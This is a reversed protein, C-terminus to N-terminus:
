DATPAAPPGPWDREAYQRARSKLGSFRPQWKGNALQGFLQKADEARGAQLLVQARDWLIQANQPEADFASAYARDALEFHGQQRLMKAMSVWPAAQNPKAALPTTLYEWAMEAAGLDGLIRAAAQCAATPDPDVQRWRDAARVVRGVFRKPPEAELTAIATALQQYRSLLRGYDRRIVRLDVVQPLGEYEIEMAREVYSLARATMGRSEALMAALRWLSPWKAYTKHDLLPQLLADARVRQGTHWLYEVAALTVPLQEEEPTGARKGATPVWVLGFLEEALTQDGLKHVQWALRVAAARAGESILEDSTRRLMAQWKKAGDPGRHFAQRFSGDIPPLFGRELTEEYLKSFLKRAEKWDGSNLMGRAHEYRAVYSLAPIRQFNLAAEGMMRSVDRGGGFPPADGHNRVTNWLAWGLEPSRCNRIFELARRREENWKAKDGETARGTNWHHWLDRFSALERLFGGSEAAEGPGESPLNFEQQQGRRLKLYAAVYQALPHDPHDELPDCPLQTNNGFNQEDKPNWTQGGAILLAYFGVRRDGRSFFRRAIVERIMHRDSALYGGLAALADEETWSEYRNDLGRAKFVSWVERFPLPLIVLKKEDPKLAPAGCPALDVKWERLVKDKGRILKVAGDAAYTQRLLTQGSPMKVLRREALRGDPDFLLHVRVYEVPKGDEHKAEEVGHPVVAVTQGDIAVLDAGLALDEAPPLAWPVRRALQARHFRSLKRRAGLGLEGYLHWLNTGDCIVEEGLGGATTRQYRYRGTGDFDVALLVDGKKGRITARQWGAARAKNILRRATKDIRGPATARKPRAEAELAARVDAMSTNMGPAYSLLDHFISWNNNFTPQQYALYQPYSGRQMRRMLAAVHYFYDGFALQREAEEPTTILLVDNQILYTLGLERLILRLASRLSIGELTKTVPSRIALGVDVLARGDIRIEIGHYNELYDLVDALPTQIFEMRTPSRLAQDIKKEASRQRALPMSGYEALFKRSIREWLEPDPYGMPPEDPFPVHSREVQYLTDMVGRQRVLRSALAGEFGGFQPVALSFSGQRFPIDLDASFLDPASMGVAGRQRAVRLALAEDLYGGMYSGIPLVLDAVPYVRTELDGEARLAEIGEIIETVRRVDRQHGSIVLVDLGELMEIQVPGIASTSFPIDLDASFLDPSSMGLTLGLSRNTDLYSDNRTIIFSYLAADVEKSISHVSGDGFLLNPVDWLRVASNWSATTLRRGDPAFAIGGPPTYGNAARPDPRGFVQFARDINGDIDFDFDVGIREYLMVPSISTTTLNRLERELRAASRYQGEEMLSAFREMLRKMLERTRPERRALDWAAVSFQGSFLRLVPVTQGGSRHPRNPWRLIDPPLRVLITRLVEAATPKKPQAGEPVDRGPRSPDPEYVVPIEEPCPYLAWHDKRGRDVKFDEYMKENELVILSTFPSMVYMAKSLEIIRDKNEVAGLAVLRDIQLKAWTRPLYDAGEAVHGVPITRSYPKGDLLGTVEVSEPLEAGDDLRAIACLEEGQALSDNYCLFAPQESEKPGKDDAQDVVKIGLLRPANLTSLLEFARWTVQEDPNIQTFYGGTRGAAAKMLTRSWRKGVGIGVYRAGKPIRRVLADVDRQGLVPLGSGVHVLVPNEAAEVAPATADLARELDLAGVLHTRELFEVAKAVNEPTVKQPKADLAHVRTGATIISFTDDHEANELLTKIVDVQVRALLPDRDASAEFLFVWDRRRHRQRAPLDPRWRLMLYRSGEHATTAFRAHSFPPAVAPKDLLAEPSPSAGESSSLGATGGQESQRDFLTLVVDRDPKIKEAETRLVLDGDEKSVDFEHSDSEWRLAAGNKVHLRASWRGVLQMNHGGPFRYQTRGYLSPLRQTYSLVIRKEQRGELPFVRMKFTSGDVWELLAPDKQRYMITEFVERGHEREVMGGEMLRGGVYMALRSLSADPPLPFYFTGELRRPEHNFYTQDITTRAFGDEIYVDVHYKRLSLKAEQGFPDVAILAGGAHRSGPVLPSAATAMLDRTWDLLHAARPAASVPPETELGGRGQPNLQQGALLPLEMGSIRVKGQTVVVRTGQDGTRVDFRTGLAIIRRDPTAVVFRRALDDTAQSALDDAAQPALQDAAQPAVEVFIEGRRLTVHRPGDLKVTTERNLYVVSGDELTLRRRQGRGTALEEGVALTETPPAKPRPQATLGTTAVMPPLSEAVPIRDRQTPPGAEPRGALERPQDDRRGLLGSGLIVGVGVLLAAAVTWGILRTTIARAQKSGRAAPPRRAAVHMAATASRVFEPDPVEPRYAGTLLREVNRDATKEAEGSAHNATENPDM